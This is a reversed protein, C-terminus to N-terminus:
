TMSWIKIKRFGRPFRVLNQSNIKQNGDCPTISFIMLLLLAMFLADGVEAAAQLGTSGPHISAFHISRRSLRAAQRAAGICKKV